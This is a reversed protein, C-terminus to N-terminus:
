GAHDDASHTRCSPTLFAIEEGWHTSHHSAKHAFQRDGVLLRVCVCVLITFTLYCWTSLRGVQTEGSLSRRIAGHSGGWKIPM